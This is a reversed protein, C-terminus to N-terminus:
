LAVDNISMIGLLVSGVLLAVIGGMVLTLLPSLIDLLKELRAEYNEAVIAAADEMMDGLTGSQEGVVAFQVTLPPMFKMSSFCTSLSQGRRVENRARAYQKALHKLNVTEVSMLLARDITMGSNSCVGLTRMFKVIDPTQLFFGVGPLRCLYEVIDARRNDQHLIYVSLAIMLVTLIILELFYHDFVNALSMVFQTALPLKEENGAFLPAFQPIVFTMVLIFTFTVMVMLFAPYLLAGKLKDRFKLSKDLSASLTTLTEPLQGSNEGAHVAATIQLPFIKSSASMANALTEGRRIKEKMDSLLTIVTQKNQMDSLLTLAQDMSLGAKLLRALDRLLNCIDRDDVRSFYTFESNLLMSLTRGSSSIEVPTLGMSHLSDIAQSRNIAQIQGTQIVGNKDYSRHSFETM